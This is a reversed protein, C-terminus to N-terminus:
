NMRISTSCYTTSAAKRYALEMKSHADVLAPNLALAKKFERISSAYDHCNYLALGLGYHASALDPALTLAKQFESIAAKYDGDLSMLTGLNNHVMPAQPNITAAQNFSQRAGKFDGASALCNGLNYSAEAMQSNLAVAKQFQEIAKQRDGQAQYVLGLNNHISADTPELRAATELEQLALYYNSNTAALMGLRHHPGAAQPDIQTVHLFEQTAEPIRGAQVLAEARALSKLVEPSLQHTTPPPPAYKQAVLGKHKPGAGFAIDRNLEYFQSVVRDHQGLHDYVGALASHAASLEVSLRSRELVLRSAAASDKSTYVRQQDADLAEMRARALDVAQQLQLVAKDYAGSNAYIIGLQNHLSPSNPTKQLEAVLQQAARDLMRVEDIQPPPPKLVTPVITMPSLRHWLVKGFRAM